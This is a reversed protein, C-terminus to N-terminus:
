PKGLAANQLHWTKPKKLNLVVLALGSVILMADEYIGLTFAASFGIVVWLLPIVILYFPLRNDALLFVALTFITTPCPLGFTPSYPYGHGAIYGLLPYIILAYVLLVASVISAINKQFSFPPAIFAYIFLLIGELIFLAGFGYAAKNIVSFFGIHYVADMWLWLGALIFTIPKGPHRKAQAVFYIACAALLVLLLQTPFVATNYKKFVELFQKITFSLKM